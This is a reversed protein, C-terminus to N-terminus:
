DYKRVSRAVPMGEEARTAPICERAAAFPEAKTQPKIMLTAIVFVM